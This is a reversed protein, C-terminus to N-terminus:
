YLEKNLSIRAIPQVRIEPALEQYSLVALDPHHLEVLKKLYRRVEMTTIVVPRQATPPINGVENDFSKLIDQATDPELALYNGNESQRISNQIVEEIEPDLLYVILNNQGRTYKFSIYRKMETRVYETLTTPNTEVPAWVAIAQLITRMDAISVEEQVLRKLIEALLHVSVLKPVTEKVLAPYIQEMQDLIAQVEQIGVFEHAYKKMIDGVSLAVYGPIEVITLGAKDARERGEAPVWTGPMHTMPNRGETVEGLQLLSVNALTENVFFHNLMVNAFLVPVENLMVVFQDASLGPVSGRVRVGPLRVGLDYFLRQRIQPLLEGTFKSDGDPGGSLLASLDASLELALPAPLPLGGAEEEEKQKEAPTKEGEKPKAVVTLGGKKQLQFLAYAVAGVCIALIFFPIKPLGPIIGLGLLLGAAIAIAKPQALVQHGIERGLNAGEEESAVRTVIMGAALSIVLASIQAVLGEGITLLTYTKAAKLPDMGKMGVGIVLGGVINIVTIIMGAIVDGKVFKMAGDMSGFLQNERELNRRKKKAEEMTMNGARLDADISMQKGPMADLTFRAAVESVREAGKAIVLFQVITLILFMIFGVVFNGGVVFQGFSQIVEGAYAYLLILRTSSIELGLRFLTTVLLITPFAAIRLAEPVYICVMLLTVAITLNLTLLIDLVFFPLPIIMMCLVLVIMFALALDGHETIKNIIEGSKFDAKIQNPDFKFKM